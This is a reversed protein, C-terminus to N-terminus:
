SASETWDGPDIDATPLREEMEVGCTEIIRAVASYHACAIVLETTQRRGLRDLLQATVEEGARVDRAIQEGFRWVREAEADLRDLDGDTAARTEDEPIGIARCINEHQVREYTSGSTRAVALIAIERLRPDLEGQLLIAQGLDTLPRLAALPDDGGRPQFRFRRRGRGGVREVPRGPLRRQLDPTCAGDRARDGAV